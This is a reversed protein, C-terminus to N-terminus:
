LVRRDAGASCFLAAAIVFFVIVMFTDSLQRLAIRIDRVILALFASM